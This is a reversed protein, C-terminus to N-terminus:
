NMWGSPLINSMNGADTHNFRDGRRASAPALKDIFARVMDYDVVTSTAEYFIVKYGAVDIHSLVVHVPRDDLYGITVGLGGHQQWSVPPDRRDVLRLWVGHQEEHTAACFGIAGEVFRILHDDIEADPDFSKGPTIAKCREAIEELVLQTHKDSANAFEILTAQAAAILGIQEITKTIDESKM